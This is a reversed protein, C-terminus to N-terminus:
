GHLAEKMRAITQARRRAHDRLNKGIRYLPDADYRDRQRQLKKERHNEESAARAETQSYARQVERKRVGCRWLGGSKRDIRKHWYMSEGHCECKPPTKSM